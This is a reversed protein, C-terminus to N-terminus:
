LLEVSKIRFHNDPVVYSTQLGTRSHLYGVHIHFNGTESQVDYIVRGSPVPTIQKYYDGGLGTESSSLSFIMFDEGSINTFTNPFCEGPIYDQEVEIFSVGSMSYTGTTAWTTASIFDQPPDMIVLVRQSPCGFPPSSRSNLQISLRNSDKYRTASNDGTFGNGWLDEFDGYYYIYGLQPLPPLPTFPFEETSRKIGLCYRDSSDVKVWDNGTGVQTLGTVGESLLGLALEGVRNQGVTYLQGSNIGAFFNRGVAFDTWGTSSNILTPTSYTSNALQSSEFGTWTPVLGWWYLQGNSRKAVSYSDSTKCVQWDTIGTAIQTFSGTGNISSLNGTGLTSFPYLSPGLIPDVWSLEGLNFGCSYLKGDRIGFSCSGNTAIDQWDSDNGVKTPNFVGTNSGLGMANTQSDFSRGWAYLEDDRIGLSTGFGTTVKSWVGSDDILILGTEPNFSTGIGLPFEETNKGFGYLHGSDSIFYLNQASNFSKSGSTWNINENLKKFELTPNIGLLSAPASGAAYWNGGQLAYSRYLSAALIDQWQNAIASSDIDPETPVAAYVNENNDFVQSFKGWWYLYGEGEEGSPDPFQSGSPTPVMLLLFSSIM